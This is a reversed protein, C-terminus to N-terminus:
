GQPPKFATGDNIFVIQQNQIHIVLDKRGNIDRIEGTIPTLDQGEGLLAPGTFTRPQSADGGPLEIIQVRRNLNLLIFHTPNKASDNHGVVADFQFTRPRGYHLDDQYVQWWSLASSLAMILMITAVMGILLTTWSFSIRVPWFPRKLPQSMTTNRLPRSNIAPHVSMGSTSIQAAPISATTGMGHTRLSSRRQIVKGNNPLLESITDAIHTPTSRYRRASSPPRTDYIEDFDMDDSPLPRSRKRIQTAGM